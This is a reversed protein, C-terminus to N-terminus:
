QRINNATDSPPPPAFPHHTSYPPLLDSQARTLEMIKDQAVQQTEAGWRRFEREWVKRRARTEADLLMTHKKLKREFRQLKSTKVAALSNRHIVEGINTSRDIMRKYGRFSEYSGDMVENVAKSFLYTDPTIRAKAAAKNIKKTGGLVEKVYKLTAVFNGDIRFADNQAVINVVRKLVHGTPDTRNIPDGACYAYANIGGKGFPSWSDPSNFRMLVPNFQRYGNGLHYHGTVPDPREGNFGLLSLLGNGVPRHGYPTYAVSRPPTADLANLVSRQQDTLLLTTAVTGGQRQRQALLQNDSQFISHQVWDQIETALRNEQYFRGTSAQEAPTCVALRDLADYYYHCLPTERNTRM